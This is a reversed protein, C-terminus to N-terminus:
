DNRHAYCKDPKIGRILLCHEYYDVLFRKVMKRRARLEAHILRQPAGKVDPTMMKKKKEDYSGLKIQRAKEQDYIDRYFPTRCKVFCDGVRYMLTRCKPNWDLQGEANSLKPAVGNVVHLGSYKWLSSAHKAKECYGFYQLLNATNITSIGRLGKLWKTYIPETEIYFQMLKKYKNENKRADKLLQMIQDIYEKEESSLKKMNDLIYKEIKKDNFEKKYKKEDVKDSKQSLEKGEIKRYIVQRIRNYANIREEQAQYFMGTALAGLELRLKNYEYNKKTKKIEIKDKKKITKKTKTM